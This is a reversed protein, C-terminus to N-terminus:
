GRLVLYGILVLLHVAVPVLGGALLLGGRWDYLAGWLGAALIFVWGLTLLWIMTSVFPVALLVLLLIVVLAAIRPLQSVPYLYWARAGEEGGGSTEDLASSALAVIPWELMGLLFLTLAITITRPDPLITRQVMLDLVLIIPPLLSLMVMPRAARLLRGVQFDKTEREAQSEEVLMDIAKNPGFMALLFNSRADSQFVPATVRQQNAPGGMVELIIRQLIPEFATMASTMLIGPRLSGDYLLSAFRAPFPLGDKTQMIVIQSQESLETVKVAVLKSWPVIQWARFYRVALGERRAEIEPLLYRFSAILPVGVAVVILGAVFPWWPPEVLRITIWTFPPFSRWTPILLGISTLFLTVVRLALLCALLYAGGRFLLRIRSPYEGAVIGDRLAAAPAAASAKQPPAKQSFFAGPNLLFRFLPSSSEEQLEAGRGQLVRAARDSETLVTRVLADFDGIASTLLIGRRLGLRYIFSYVRHWDTLYPGHAEILLVYRENSETVQVSRINEWPLPLWGGAFEILLGRASTRITPIGFRLFLAAMLAIALWILDPLLISGAQDLSGCCRPIVEGTSVVISRLWPFRAFLSTDVGYAEWYVRLLNRGFVILAVTVAAASLFEVALEIRKPYRHVREVSSM